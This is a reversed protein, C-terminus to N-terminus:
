QVHLLKVETRQGSTLRVFYVGNSVNTLPLEITHLGKEFKSNEIEVVEEGLTNWLSIKLNSSNSQNFKVQVRDNAPNPYVEFIDVSNTFLSIAEAVIVTNPELVVQTDFKVELSTEENNLRSYHYFYIEEGISEEDMFVSMAITNSRFLQSALLEGSASKVAVEDGLNFDELLSLPLAISMNHEKVEAQKFYKVQAQQQVRLEPLVVDNAPFIFEATNTMRIQYGKGPDMNGITNVGFEPWYVNGVGDKVLLVDSAVAEMVATIDASATRLYGLYSWGENLNLPYDDPNSIAGRVELNVDANMKLKYAKGMTHDGINNLGFEPWYVNGSEDKALFLDAEVPALVDQIGVLDPVIYTSILNWGEYLEITQSMTNSLATIASIGDVAYTDLNPMSLDYDALALREENLSAKWTMWVFEEGVQMGNSEGPDSGYVTMTNTVGEWQMMGACQFSGDLATYFVGLYDGLEIALDNITINATNPILIIHNNSTVIPNWDPETPLPYVCSGDDTNALENYNIAEVDICGLVEEECSGDDANADPNYNPATEDTCGYIVGICSGDDVTAEPNYNLADESTCGLIAEICSGDDFTALEDFNLALPDTCGPVVDAVVVTAYATYVGTLTYVSLSVQYTGNDAYYHTPEEEDFYTSGDGMDWLYYNINNLDNVYAWFHFNSGPLQNYDIIVLSVYDCEGSEVNASPNYNHAEPDMCGVVTAICSGDDSNADINYNIALPDTCGEIICSGNDSNAEPNFNSALPNTCGAIICSENETNAEPDYNEAEPNTCGYIFPVCSNDDVTADPNYNFMTEDMCGAIETTSLLGTTFSFVTSTESEGCPSVSTVTWFYETEESLVIDMPYSPEEINTYEFLVDLMAVDSAIQLTYESASAQESWTFTPSVPVLTQADTPYTQTAVDPTGSYVTISVDELHTISGSTSTIQFPYVGAPIPVPSSITLVSNDGPAVDTPVFNIILGEPADEISLTVLDSFNLIPDIQIDFVAADESCVDLDIPDVTMIYNPESPEVIQFQNTINFFVNDSAKVKIRCQSSISYPCVIETAGNNPVGEALLEDFTQGGDTSLYIDVTSCNIPAADTNAVDWNLTYTSGYEWSEDINNVTFPGGLDSVQFAIQDYSVGGGGANNDRVTLRFTLDRSYTPLLEGITSTGALLDQLRPFIRTSSLSPEWSRFIPQNGSPNTLLDDGDATVPGLDFEEWCYTLENAADPDNAAGILEFPTNAPITFGGVGANAVPISNGTPTIQACNGTGNTHTTIQDFSYTHYYDDSNNQLNPACIGAYGMITSASGPEYASTSTRECSNNQTHNGGFQHGMEHCVYDIDFPDGIPNFHGTIGRGKQSNLCVVGLGALGGSDKGFVHGIDYNDNGVVDDVNTQNENIMQGANGNTYPDTAADTYMLEDNNEVLELRFSAEREYVGNIRNLTANVAAIADAVTGGHFETYEGTTAIAARYIRLEDGSQGAVVQAIAKSEVHFDEVCQGTRVKDTTAYFDDKYYSICYETNNISYPDIYVTGHVSIIMAHFGNHDISMRMTATRDDIGQGLYSRIEPFKKQLPDPMLSSAVISFKQFEGNPMPLEIVKRNEQISVSFEEPATAFQEYLQNLDFSYSTYAAPIIYRESDTEISQGTVNTWINEAIASTSILAIVFLYIFSRFLNKNQQMISYNKLIKLYFYLRELYLLFALNLESIKHCVNLM